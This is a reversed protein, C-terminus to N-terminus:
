SSLLERLEDKWERGHPQAEDLIQFRFVHDKFDQGLQQWTVRQGAKEFYTAVHRKYATDPNGELHAGKSEIVFVQNYRRGNANQQAVFDPFLKDRKYGQVAFHDRGVRNRFWWLVDAHKDLCLAVKREYENQSEREAFDFLSKVMPSGDDHTLPTLPGLSQLTISSPIRFACERHELYFRVRNADFLTGFAAETQHDIAARAFEEIRNRVETKVLALRDKVMGSLHCSVLRDYVREVMRHLQKFSLFEFRLSAVMWACVREDPEWFDIDTEHERRLPTGLSISYYRNRAERLTEALDWEIRDYPFADVNVQSILHEFYDLPRYERGHKVCFRPLYIEGKFPQGYLDSFERRIRVVRETRQPQGRSGDVAVGEIDGEYGEKELVSKVQSAIEGATQHLCFVFSENLERQPTRQQYPLRLVRGVLQTMAKASGTNNLSVLIYAFPCDWGEQLASKTIIWEVPCEPDMLEIDELGDDEASKIRISTAPANLRQILYEQVDLSHVVVKGGVKVGRQDKGTREVQVLVVPRIVRKQPDADYFEAARQRLAERKDRARTLVAKWDSLGSTAINLPLKIMEEDLLEQGTVRSLINADAQPTASLEVVIAANFGAITNRALESTAKHGEDLIVPPRGMRVFNGPSTKVLCEGTAADDALVELNPIREKLARHAAQDSEPPFHQVISGGSDRFFRLQEKTERNAAPLMLVLINLCDRLRAPSLRHLDHKEWLEIRRSVAHELMVRYMHRRDRLNKLTDRYIQNSPVVWLALGTGLRDALLTRYISGLIQTALLTKGGGTPVKVCFNPMDEGLGNERELYRRLGLDRLAPDRWADVAAHRVNGAARQAALLRLYREAEQCVREQYRKLSM